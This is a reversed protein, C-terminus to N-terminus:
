AMAYERPFPVLHGMEAVERVWEDKAAHLAALAEERTEGDAACGPLASIKAVYAEDDHSYYSVVEYGDIDSHRIQDKYGPM